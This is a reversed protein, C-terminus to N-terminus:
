SQGIPPRLGFAANLLPREELVTSFDRGTRWLRVEDPLRGYIARGANLARTPPDEWGVRRAIEALQGTHAGDAAGIREVWRTAHQGAALFDRKENNCRADAAVLNRISNDAHRSWPIFHDVEVAGAMPKDCYFCRNDQLERLPQRIPDLAIRSAGFLFEQLRAEDTADRNIGAVMGAWARQILPRLLGSFRILNDAVGPLLHIDRDFGASEVDQRSVRTDWGIDYLFRSDSSGVVQLRPLPMEILKWEIRRVLAEYREPAGARVRWLPEGAAGGCRERFQCLSSVIEAQGGRSQVLLKTVAPGVFPVTQPWYLDIVKEALTRTAFAVSAGPAADHELCLETLGLLVAFKYTATFLGEDLLQLVKEGFAADSRDDTAAAGSADASARPPPSSRRVPWRPGDERVGPQAEDAPRYRAREPIVGRVGGRPDSVDGAYRPIVHLHLHFVTQGAAAGANSGINFGDPSHHHRIAERAAHTAAALEALEDRSADFWHEVHRKPILLAHGPSVPHADWIGLVLNGVHFIREAEPRCFPCDGEPM